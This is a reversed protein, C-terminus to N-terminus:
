AKGRKALVRQAAALRGFQGISVVPMGHKLAEYNLAEYTDNADSVMVALAAYAAAHEAKLRDREAATEPAAAIFAARDFDNEDPTVTCVRKGTFNVEVWLRKTDNDHSGVVWEPAHKSNANM